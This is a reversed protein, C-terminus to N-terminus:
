LISAKIGGLSSLVHILEFNKSLTESYKQYMKLVNGRTNCGERGRRMM